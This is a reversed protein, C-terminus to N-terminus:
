MTEVGTNRTSKNGDGSVKTIFLLPINKSINSLRIRYQHQQGGQLVEM